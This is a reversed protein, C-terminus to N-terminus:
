LNLIAGVCAILICIDNFGMNYYVALHKSYRASSWIFYFSQMVNTAYECSCESCIEYFYSANNSPVNNGYFPKFDRLSKPLQNTLSYIILSQPLGSNSIEWFPNSLKYYFCIQFQLSSYSFKTNMVVTKNVYNFQVHAQSGTKGLCRHRGLVFEQQIGRQM